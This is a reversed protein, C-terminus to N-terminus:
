RGQNFNPDEWVACMSRVGNGKVKCSNLDLDSSENSELIMFLLKLWEM